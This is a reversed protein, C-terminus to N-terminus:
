YTCPYCSVVFLYSSACLFPFLDVRSRSLLADKETQKPFGQNIVGTRVDMLSLM